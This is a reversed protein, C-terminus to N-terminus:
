KVSVKQRDSSCELLIFDCFMNSLGMLGLGTVLVILTNKLDFKSARGNVVVLFKLGYAKILTRRNEEHYHAHRFNFDGM